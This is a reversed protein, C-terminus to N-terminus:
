STCSLKKHCELPLSGELYFKSPFPASPKLAHPSRPECHHSKTPCSEILYYSFLIGIRHIPPKSEPPQPRKLIRWCRSTRPSRGAPPRAMPNKSCSRRGNKTPSHNHFDWIVTIVSIHPVHPTEQLTHMALTEAVLHPLFHCTILPCCGYHRWSASRFRLVCVKQLLRSCFNRQSMVHQNQVLEGVGGCANNDTLCRVSPNSAINM